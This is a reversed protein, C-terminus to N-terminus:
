NGESFLECVAAKYGEYGVLLNLAEILAKPTMDDPLEFHRSLVRRRESSNDKGTLGDMYFDVKTIMKANNEASLAVRGGDDVFPALLRELAERSMGEVGLLGSKSAKVKRKEKGEVKPIYVNKVKDPPLIGLLFSRIQRGGGDSDTLLIVGDKAIKRLLVQKEKSNFVGFGGLTFIRADFIQSLTNKDYKGEVIIPLSIKKKEMKGKGKRKRAFIPM